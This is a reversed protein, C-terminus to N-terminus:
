PSISDGQQRVQGEAVKTTGRNATGRAFVPCGLHGIAMVHRVCVDIV